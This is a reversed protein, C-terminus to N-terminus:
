YYADWPEAVCTGTQCQTGLMNSKDVCPFPFHKYWCHILIGLFPYAHTNPLIKVYLVYFILVNVFVITVM